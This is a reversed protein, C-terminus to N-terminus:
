NIEGMTKNRKHRIKVKNCKEKHKAKKKEEWPDFGEWLAGM